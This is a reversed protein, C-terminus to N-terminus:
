TCTRNAAQITTAHKYAQFSDKAHVLDKDFSNHESTHLENHNDLKASQYNEISLTVTGGGEQIFGRAIPQTTSSHGM